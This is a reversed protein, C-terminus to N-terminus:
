KEEVVYAGKGYELRAVQMAAEYNPATVRAVSKPYKIPSEDVGGKVVSLLIINYTPM